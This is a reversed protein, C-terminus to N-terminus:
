LLGLFGKLPQFGGLVVQSLIKMSIVLSQELLVVYQKFLSECTNIFRKLSSNESFDVSCDPHITERRIVFFTSWGALILRSECKWSVFWRLCLVVFSLKMHINSLICYSVSASNHALFFSKRTNSRSFYLSLM